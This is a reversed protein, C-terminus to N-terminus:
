SSFSGEPDTKERPVPAEKREDAATARSTGRPRLRAPYWFRSRGFLIRVRSRGQLAKSGGQGLRDREIQPMSRGLRDLASASGIALGEPIDAPCSASSVPILALPM